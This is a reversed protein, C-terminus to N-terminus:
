GPDFAAVECARAADPRAAAEPLQPALFGGLPACRGPDTTEITLAGFQFADFALTMRYSTPAAGGLIEVRNGGEGPFDLNTTEVSVRGGLYRTVGRVAPFAVGDLEIDGTWAQGAYDLDFGGDPRANLRPAAAAVVLRHAGLRVEFAAIGDRDLFASHTCRVAIELGADALAVRWLQPERACGAPLAADDLTLFAHAAGAMREVRGTKRRSQPTAGFLRALAGAPEAYAVTAEAYAGDLAMTVDAFAAGSAASAFARRAAEEAGPREGGDALAGAAALAAMEAVGGLRAAESAERGRQLVYAGGLAAVAAFAVGAAAALLAKLSPRTLRPSHFVGRGHPFSSLRMHAGMRPFLGSPGAAMLRLGTKGFRQALREIKQRRTADPRV